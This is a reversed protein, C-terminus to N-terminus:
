GGLDVRKGEVVSKGDGAHPEGRPPALQIHRRRRCEGHEKADVEHVPALNAVPLKESWQQIAVAPESEDGDRSVEALSAACQHGSTGSARTMGPVRSDDSMAATALASSCPAASMTKATRDCRSGGASSPAYRWTSTM